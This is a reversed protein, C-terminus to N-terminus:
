LTETISHLNWLPWLSQVQKGSQTKFIRTATSTWIRNNAGLPTTHRSGARSRECIEKVTQSTTSFMLIEMFAQCFSIIAPKILFNNLHRLQEKNVGLTTWKNKSRNNLSNLIYNQDKLPGFISSHIQSFHVIKANTNRFQMKKGEVQVRMFDQNADQSRKSKEWWVTGNKGVKRMDTLYLPPM